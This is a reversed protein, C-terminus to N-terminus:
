GSTPYIYSQSVYGAQPPYGPTPSYNIYAWGGNLSLVQFVMPPAVSGIVAYNTGPGARVNLSNANYVTANFPAPPLVVPPPPAYVPQVPQPGSSDLCQAYAADYARQKAQQWAVSGVVLGAGAGVAAGTGVKGGTAGAILGGVIAGGVGGAVAGGGTPYQQEAYNAAYTQCQYASAADASGAASAVLGAFVVATALLTRM